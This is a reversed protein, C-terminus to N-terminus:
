QLPHLSVYKHTLVKIQNIITIKDIKENKIYRGISISPYQSNKILLADKLYNDPMGFIFNIYQFTMWVDIYEIDAVSTKNTRKNEILYGSISTHNNFVGSKHALQINHVLFLSFLILLLLIAGVLLSEVPTIKHFLKKFM